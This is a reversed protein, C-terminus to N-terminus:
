ECSVQKVAVVSVGEVLQELGAIWGFKCFASLAPKAPEHEPAVIM